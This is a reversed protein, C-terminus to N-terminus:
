ITNQKQLVQRIVTELTDEQAEEAKSIPKYSYPYVKERDSFLYDNEEKLKKIQEELGVIEKGDFNLNELDLLAKVAKTNKAHNKLLAVELAGQFRYEEADKKVRELEKQVGESEMVQGNLTEICTEAERLSAKAAKCEENVENFRAKPIFQGDLFGAVKEIMEESLGLQKLKEKM